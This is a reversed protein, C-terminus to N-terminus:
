YFERSCFESAVFLKNSVYAMLQDHMSSLANTWWRTADTLYILHIFFPNSHLNSNVNDALVEKIRSEPEQVTKPWRGDIFNIAVMSSSTGCKSYRFTLAIVSGRIDVGQDPLHLHHFPNMQNNSSSSTIQCRLSEKCKMQVRVPLIYWLDTGVADGGSYRFSSGRRSPLFYRSLADIFTSPTNLKSFVHKLATRSVRLKTADPPM